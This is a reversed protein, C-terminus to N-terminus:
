SRGPESLYGEFYLFELEVSSTRPHNPSLWIPTTSLKNM